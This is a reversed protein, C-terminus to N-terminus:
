AYPTVVKGTNEKNYCIKLMKEIEFGLFFPLEFCRKAKIM